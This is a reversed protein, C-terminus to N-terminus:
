DSSGEFLISYYTSAESQQLNTLVALTHSAGLLQGAKFKHCSRVSCFCLLNQFMAPNM